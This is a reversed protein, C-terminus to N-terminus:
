FKIFIEKALITNIEKLHIWILWHFLEVRIEEMNILIVNKVLIQDDSKTLPTATKTSTTKTTTSTTTTSKTTTTMLTTRLALKSALKENGQISVTVSIGGCDTTISRNIVFANVVISVALLLMLSSAFYVLAKIM